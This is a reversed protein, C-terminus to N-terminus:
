DIGFLLQGEEVADGEAVFVGTIMGGTPAEVPIEMKMSEMIALEQGATVEDGVKALVKWMNATMESYVNTSM